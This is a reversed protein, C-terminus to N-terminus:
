KAKFNSKLYKNFFSQTTYYPKTRAIVRWFWDDTKGSLQYFKEMLHNYDNLKQINRTDLMKYKERHLVLDQPLRPKTFAPKQSECGFSDLNIKPYGIAMGFLPLVKKDQPIELIDHIKAVRFGGIYLTGLGLSEAALSFTQAAIVTDIICRLELNLYDLADKSQEIQDQTFKPQNENIVHQMITCDACWILLMSSSMISEENIPDPPLNDSTYDSKEMGLAAMNNNSSILKRRQLPSEIAIVSWPQIMSSTPASQAAAILLELTGEDLPRYDFIRVSKRTLIKDVFENSSASNQVESTGYRSQFSTLNSFYKCLEDDTM